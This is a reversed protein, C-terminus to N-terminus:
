LIKRNMDYKVNCSTFTLMSITNPDCSVRLSSLLDPTRCHFATPRSMFHGYTLFHGSEHEHRLLWECHYFFHVTTTRLRITWTLCLTRLRIQGDNMTMNINIKIVDYKVNCCTFTLMSITNPDCSVILRHCPVCAGGEGKPLIKFLQIKLM